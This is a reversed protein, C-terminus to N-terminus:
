WTDIRLTSIRQFDQDRTLLTENNSIAISAILLDADELINSRLQKYLQGYIKSSKQDLKLIRVFRVLSDIKRIENNVDTSLYAGKYLEALNIATTCLDRGLAKLKSLTPLDQRILLIFFNTDLCVM